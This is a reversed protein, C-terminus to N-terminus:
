SLDSSSCKPIAEIKELKNQIIIPEALRLAM